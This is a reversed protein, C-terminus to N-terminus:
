VRLLWITCNLVCIRHINLILLPCICESMWLYRRSSHLTLESASFPAIGFFLFHIEHTHTSARMCLFMLASPMFSDWAHTHIQVCVCFCSHQHCLHIERMHTYKCVHLSVPISIAYIFRMCTHTSACTGLFLLVSPMFSDWAHTHIQVCVCFCCHACVGVIGVDLAKSSVLARFLQTCVVCRLLFPWRFLISKSM